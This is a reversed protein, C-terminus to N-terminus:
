TAGLNGLLEIGKRLQRLEEDDLRFTWSQRTDNWGRMMTIEFTGKLKDITYYLTM